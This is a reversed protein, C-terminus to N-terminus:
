HSRLETRFIRAAQLGGYDVPPVVRVIRGIGVGLITQM